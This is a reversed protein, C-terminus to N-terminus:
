ILILFSSAFRVARGAVDNMPKNEGPVVEPYEWTWSSSGGLQKVLHEKSIHVLLDETSKTLEQRRCFL